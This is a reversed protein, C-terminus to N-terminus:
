GIHGASTKAKRRGAIEKARFKVIREILKVPVPESLPFRVTGKDIEYSALEDEFAAVVQKTAAYISYHQKWVAFYLLRDGDLMYTPMKYSIVEQAGPVAKRITARVRGLIEQVAEPQAAIYEDVSTFGTKAALRKPAVLRWAETLLDRLQWEDVTSLRVIVGPYTKYHPTVFFAEPNSELLHERRDLNMRVIVFEENDPVGSPRSRDNNALYALVKGAVRVV